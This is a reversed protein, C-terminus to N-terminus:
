VEAIIKLQGVNMNSFPPVEPVRIPASLARVYKRDQYSFTSRFVGRETRSPDM